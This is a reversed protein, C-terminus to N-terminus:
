IFRLSVEGSDIVVRNANNQVVVISGSDTVSEVTGEICENGKICKVEKGIVISNQRYDDMYSRDNPNKAFTLLNDAIDSVLDNKSCTANLTGAIDALSQPFSGTYLNIGIGVIVYTYEANERDPVTEALIGCVKKGNHYLDNVWKISTQIGTLKKISRMVAVASSSTISVVDTLPANTHYCLTMYVGSEGLSYFSRGVRGRGDTQNNALILTTKETQGSLIKRKAYSNTSDISELVTIDVSNHCGLRSLIYKIDYMESQFNVM